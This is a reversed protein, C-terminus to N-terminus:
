GRNVIELADEKYVLNAAIYDRILLRNPALIDFWTADWTKYAQWSFGYYLVKSMTSMSQRVAHLYVPEMSTGAIELISGLYILWEALHDYQVWADKVGTFETKKAIVAGLASVVDPSCISRGIAGLSAVIEFFSVRSKLYSDAYFENEELLKRTAYMSSEVSAKAAPISASIFAFLTDIDIDDIVRMGYCSAYYDKLHQDVVDKSVLVINGGILQERAFGRYDGLIARLNADGLSYGLIVVTNEYLITSLKRSFFSEGRMFAMYDNSTVIM